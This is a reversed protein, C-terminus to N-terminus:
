RVERQRDEGVDRNRMGTRRKRGWGGANIGEGTGGKWGKRRRRGEQRKKDKDGGYM